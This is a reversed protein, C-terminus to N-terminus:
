APYWGACLAAGVRCAARPDNRQRQLRQVPRSVRSHATRAAVSAAAKCLRALPHRARSLGSPERLAAQGVQPHSDWRAHEACNLPQGSCSRWDSQLVPASTSRCPPSLLPRTPPGEEKALVSCSVNLLLRPQAGGRAKHAARHASPRSRAGWHVLGAEAGRECSEQCAACTVPRHAQGPPAAATAPWICGSPAPAPPTAALPSHTSQSQAGLASRQSPPRGQLFGQRQADGPRGDRDQAWLRRRLLEPRRALVEVAHDLREQAGAQLVYALSAGTLPRRHTWRTCKAVSQLVARGHM